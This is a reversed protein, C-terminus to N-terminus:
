QQKRPVCLKPLGIMCHDKGFPSLTLCTNSNLSLEITKSGVLFYVMYCCIPLLLPLMSNIMNHFWLVFLLSNYYRHTWTSPASVGREKLVSSTLLQFM